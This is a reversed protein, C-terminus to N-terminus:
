TDNRDKCSVVQNLKISIWKLNLFQLLLYPNKRQHFIFKIYDYNYKSNNGFM